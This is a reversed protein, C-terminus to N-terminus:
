HGAEVERFYTVEFQGQYEWTHQYDIRLKVCKPNGQSHSCLYNKMKDPDSADAFYNVLVGTELNAPIIRGKKESGDSLRFRADV